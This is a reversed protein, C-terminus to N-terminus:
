AQREARRTVAALVGASLRLDMEAPLLLPDRERDLLDPWALGEDQAEPDEAPVTVAEREALKERARAVREADQRAWSPEAPLVEDELGVAGWHEPEPQSADKAAQRAALKEALDKALAQSGPGGRAQM